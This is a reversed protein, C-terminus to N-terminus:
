KQKKLCEVENFVEDVAIEKMCINEPCKLFYCAERNCGTDKQIITYQGKGRPGTIEPRTPGFLCVTKTGVCNAIHMPGSDASVMVDALSLLAMLEKLTTEGAVVVPKVNSLKVIDDVLGKDKLAGPVVVKVKLAVMLQQILSAVNEKPWRKLDWNGGPNVVVVFDKETIGADNLKKQMTAKDKSSVDISCTRDKIEFGYSEIVHTYFDSRHVDGTLYSVKHTLFKGRNKADYGVRQPIGALFALLARTWSRHLLFVLDFKRKRMEKVIHFKGLLGRGRGKEDYIIIEDIGPCSELIEKVRPVALCTVRAKPYKTKIAKFIPTSFIVDGVWNVNVVLINNIM